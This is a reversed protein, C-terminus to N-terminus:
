SLPALPAAVRRISEHACRGLSFSSRKVATFGHRRECVVPIYCGASRVRWSSSEELNESLRTQVIKCCLVHSARLSAMAYAM